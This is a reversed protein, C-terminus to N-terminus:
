QKYIANESKPKFLYGHINNKILENNGPVDSCIVPIKFLGAQLLSRSMGERYSPFLFCDASLYYSELNNIFKIINLDKIKKNIM